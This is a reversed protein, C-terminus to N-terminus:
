GRHVRKWHKVGYALVVLRLAAENVILLEASDAIDNRIQLIRETDLDLAGEVATKLSRTPDRM